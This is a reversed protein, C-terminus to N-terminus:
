LVVVLLIILIQLIVLSLKIQGLLFTTLFEAKMEVIMGTIKVLMMNWLRYIDNRNKEKGCKFVLVYIDAVKQQIMKSSILTNGNLKYLVVNWIDNMVSGEM